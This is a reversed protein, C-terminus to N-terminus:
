NWWRSLLGRRAPQLQSVIVGGSRSKSAPVKREHDAKPTLAPHSRRRVVWLFFQLIWSGFKRLIERAFLVAIISAALACYGLLGFHFYFVLVRSVALNQFDTTGSPTLEISDVVAIQADNASILAPGRDLPVFVMGTHLPYNWTFEFTRNVAQREVQLTALDPDDTDRLKSTAYRPYETKGRSTERDKGCTSSAREYTSPKSIEIRDVEKTCVTSWIGNVRVDVTQADTFSVEHGGPSLAIEIRQDYFDGQGISLHMEPAPADSSVTSVKRASRNAVDRKAAAINQLVLVRVKPDPVTAATIPLSGVVSWIAIQYAAAEAKPLVARSGDALQSNGASLRAIATALPMASLHRSDVSVSRASQPAPFGPQLSYMGVDDVAGVRYIDEGAPYTHGDLKFVPRNGVSDPRVFHAQQGPGEDAYAPYGSPLALSLLAFAAVWGFVGSKRLLM